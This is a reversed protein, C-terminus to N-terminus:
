EPDFIRKFERLVNKNLFLPTKEVSTEIFEIIDSKGNWNKRIIRKSFNNKISNLTLILVSFDDIYGELGYVEEPIVDVPTLLYSLAVIIRVRTATPTTESVLINILLEFLQPIPDIYGKWKYDKGAGRSLHRLEKNLNRQYSKFLKRYNVTKDFGKKAEM